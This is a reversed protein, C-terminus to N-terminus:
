CDAPFEKQLHEFLEVCKVAADGHLALRKCGKKDIIIVVADPVVLWVEKDYRYDLDILLWYNVLEWHDNVFESLERVSWVSRMFEEVNKLKEIKEVVEKEMVKEM